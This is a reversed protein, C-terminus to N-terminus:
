LQDQFYTNENREDFKYAQMEIQKRKNEEQILPYAALLVLFSTLNSENGWVIQENEKFVELAEKNKGLKVLTRIISALPLLLGSHGKVLPYGKKICEEAEEINGLALNAEAMIGYTLHPVEACKQKGKLIPQAIQIAKKYEGMFVYYHAKEHTDCAKCDSMYDGKTHQWKDFYIAAGEKDGTYISVLTKVKYYPQLSFNQQEFKLKMDKLLAEIQIKSISDFYPIEEGVWKYRWLMDFANMEPNGEEYQNVLWSFAQLLKTSEGNFTAAEVLLERAERGISIDHNADAHMIIRELIPIAERSTEGLMYVNELESIYDM